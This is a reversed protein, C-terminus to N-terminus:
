RGLLSACRRDSEALPDNEHTATNPHNMGRSKAEASSPFFDVDEESPGYFLAVSASAPIQGYYIEDEKFYLGTADQAWIDSAPSVARINSFQPM